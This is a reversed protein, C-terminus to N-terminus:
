FGFFPRDRGILVLVMVVSLGISLKAKTRAVESNSGGDNGVGIQCLTVSDNIIM